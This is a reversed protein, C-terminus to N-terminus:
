RKCHQSRVPGRGASCPDLFIGACSYGEGLVLCSSEPAMFLRQFMRILSSLRLEIILMSRGASVEAVTQQNDRYRECIGSAANSRFATALRADCVADIRGSTDLKREAESSVAVRILIM